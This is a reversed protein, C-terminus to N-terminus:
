PHSQVKHNFMYGAGRVTKILKPDSSNREIKKRLRSIQNDITRDLPSWALGNTLDMLQDRSLRREPHTLFVHLLRFDGSTLGCDIGDRDLLELRDPFATMGDFSFYGSGEPTGSAAEESQHTGNARRLISRMRATVERIHFPKYIYDDAGVELGVVLDFIDDKATLIIIPVDSTKRLETTLDLGNDAGSCIDLIIMSVSSSLMHSLAESAGNAELICFGQEALANPMSSRIEPDNSIIVIHQEM